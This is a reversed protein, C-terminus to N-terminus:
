ERGYYIEMGPGGPSGSQCRSRTPAPDCFPQHPLLRRVRGRGPMSAAQIVVSDFGNALVATLDGQSAITFNRSKAAKM